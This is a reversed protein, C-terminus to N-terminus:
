LQKIVKYRFNSLKVTQANDLMALENWVSDLVDWLYLRTAYRAFCEYATKSSKCLSIWPVKVYMAIIKKCVDLKICTWALEFEYDFGVIKCLSLKCELPKLSWYESNELADPVYGSYYLTVPDLIKTRGIGGINDVEVERLIFRTGVQIDRRDVSIAQMCKHVKDSLCVRPITKNENSGATEPICPMLVRRLDDLKFTVNYLKM